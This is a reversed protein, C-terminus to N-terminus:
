RRWYILWTQNDIFRSVRFTRIEGDALNIGARNAIQNLIPVWAQAAEVTNTAIVFHGGKIKNGSGSYCGAFLEMYSKIRTCSDDSFATENKADKAYGLLILGQNPPTALVVDPRIEEQMSQHPVTYGLSLAWHELAEKLRAHEDAYRMLEMSIAGFLFIRTADGAAAERV